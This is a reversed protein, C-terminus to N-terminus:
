IKKKKKKRRKFVMVQGARAGCILFFPVLYWEVTNEKHLLDRGFVLVLRNSNDLAEGVELVPYDAEGVLRHDGLPISRYQDKNLNCGEFM